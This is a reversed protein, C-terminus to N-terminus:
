QKKTNTMCSKGKRKCIKQYTFIEEKHLHKVFLDYFKQVKEPVAIRIKYIGNNTIYLGKYGKVANMNNELNSM